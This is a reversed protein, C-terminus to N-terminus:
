SERALGSVSALGGSAPHTSSPHTSLGQLGATFFDVLCLYTRSIRFEIADRGEEDDCRRM